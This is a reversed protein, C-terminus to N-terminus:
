FKSFKTAGEQCRGGTTMQPIAVNQCKHTAKFFTHDQTLLPNIKQDLGPTEVQWVHKEDDTLYISFWDEFLDPVAGSFGTIFIPALM